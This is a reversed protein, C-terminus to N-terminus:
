HGTILLRVVTVCVGTYGFGSLKVRFFSNIRRPSIVDTEIGQQSPLNGM